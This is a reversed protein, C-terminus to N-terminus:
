TAMKIQCYLRRSRKLLLSVRLLLCIVLRRRRSHGIPSTGSSLLPAPRPVQGSALLPVGNYSGTPLGSLSRTLVGRGVDDQEELSGM